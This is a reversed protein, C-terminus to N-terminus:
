LAKQADRITTQVARANAIGEFAPPQYRASGPWGRPSFGGFSSPGFTVTGSGDSRESLNMESLTRLQLSQVRQNFTQTLILVRQDTVAYITRARTWIDVFFRGITIYLGMAVFPIGWLMFFFPAHGRVVSAEWFVAFGGWLLSFPIMFADSGRVILGQTPYGKWLVREGGELASQLAQEMADANRSVNEDALAGFTM